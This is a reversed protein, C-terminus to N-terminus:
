KSVQGVHGDAYIAIKWSYASDLTGVITDAPSEIEDLREHPLYTFVDKETGPKFFLDKSKMYPYILERVNDGVPMAGDWDTSYMIIALGIYKGQTLLKSLEEQETLPLGIKLKEDADPKRLSLEAVCARGRSVYGVKMWDNSWTVPGTVEQAVLMHNLEHKELNGLWLSNNEQQRSDTEGKIVDRRGYAFRDGDPSWGGFGVAGSVSRVVDGTGVSRILLKNQEYGAEYVGDPTTTWKNAGAKDSAVLTETGNYIDIKKLQPKNSGSSFVNLLISKRDDAFGIIHYDGERDSCSFVTRTTAKTLDISQIIRTYQPEKGLEAPKQQIGSLILNSSDWSWLISGSLWLNHAIPYEARIEGKPTLILLCDSTSVGKEDCTVRQAQVVFQQSNPAWAFHWGDGAPPIWVPNELKPEGHAIVSEYKGADMFVTARGGSASVACLRGLETRYVVYKGNPSLWVDTVKGDSAFSLQRNDALELVKDGFAMIHINQEKAIIASCALFCLVLTLLRVTM